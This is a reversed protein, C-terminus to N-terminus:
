VTYAMWGRAKAAEAASMVADGDILAAARDLDAPRDFFRSAARKAEVYAFHPRLVQCDLAAAIAAQGEALHDGGLALTLLADPTTLVALAAEAHAADIAPTVMVAASGSTRLALGGAHWQVDVTVTYPGAFPLLAGERGRLLTMSGEVLDVDVLREEACSLLPGFARTTGTPDTITGSVHGADLGLDAPVLVGEGKSLRLEVRVPAGIPVTPTLVRVDLEVGEPEEVADDASIPAGLYDRGFPVGGPRVWPDPWHRLRKQDDPAHSWQVNEPFQHPPVAHNAIEETANMFGMDTLNHKLGMAHGLEHVAARFYADTATGFRQGRILGWPAEDPVMWDASLGAGERPLHDSDTIIDDFMVGRPNSDLQSVCVLWYRWERDLDVSDRRALLAAHLEAKSWTEDPPEEVDSDSLVVGVHWGVQEFVGHWDLGASNALPRECGAVRDIEITARRLHRSVWGMSMSGIVAGESDRVDGRLFDSPFGAPAATWEMRATYAGERAFNKFKQDFRHLEFGLPFRTAESAGELIKTVRVYYRYQKLPFIPIGAAPDPETAGRRHLYLDGSAITNVDDREVRLTGHYHPPAGTPTYRLVYCGPRLSSM